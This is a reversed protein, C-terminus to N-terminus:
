ALMGSPTGWCWTSRRAWSWMGADGMTESKRLFKATDDSTAQAESPRLAAVIQGSVAMAVVFRDPRLLPEERRYPFPAPLRTALAIRRRFRPVSFDPRPPFPLRTFLRLCAIAIPSESARM